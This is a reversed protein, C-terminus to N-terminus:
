QSVGLDVWPGYTRQELLAERAAEVTYKVTREIRGARYYMPIPILAEQGNSCDLVAGAIEVWAHAYRLGEAEGGAGLPVGHVLVPEHGTHELFDLLEHRRLGLVLEAAVVFCDGKGKKKKKRM